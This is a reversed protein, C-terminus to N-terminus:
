RLILAALFFVIFRHHRITPLWFGTARGEIAIEEEDKEVKEDELDEDAQEDSDNDICEQHLSIVTLEWDLVVM